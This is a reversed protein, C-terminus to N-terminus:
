TGAAVMDIKYVNSEDDVAYLLIDGGHNIPTPEIFYEINKYESM